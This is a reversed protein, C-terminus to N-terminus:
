PSSPRPTLISSGNPCPCVTIRNDHPVPKLANGILCGVLVGVSAILLALATPAKVEITRSV